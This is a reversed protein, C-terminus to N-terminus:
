VLELYLFFQHFKSLFYVLNHHLLPKNLNELKKNINNERLDFRLTSKLEFQENEGSLILEKIEDEKKNERHKLEIRSKLETFIANARKELFVLYDDSMIGFNDLDNILHSKLSTPLDDNEDLFDQVYISPAKARIKRKNL